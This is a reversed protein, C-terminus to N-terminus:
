RRSVVRGNRVKVQNNTLEFAPPSPLSSQTSGRGQGPRGRLGRSNERGTAGSNNSSRSERSASQRGNFRAVTDVVDHFFLVMASVNDMSGRDVAFETLKQCCNNLVRRIAEPSPRPREGSLIRPDCVDPTYSLFDRVFETAEENSLVDWLGDCALLLFASADTLNLQRVDAVNSVMLDRNSIFRRNTQSNPPSTSAPSASPPPPPPPPPPAAAAAAAASDGERQLGFPFDTLLGEEDSTSSPQFKFEFDGLARSVALIGCVRGFQVFGGCKAIRRTEDTNGPKHDESMAITTQGDYLVARADGLCAVYLMRGCVAATILTSGGNAGTTEDLMEEYMDRRRRGTNRGSKRQQELERKKAQLIHFIERDTQLISEVLALANNEGLAPHHLVFYPLWKAGLDAVHRGCHGDLVAMLSLPQGRVHTANLEIFHADEMTPRMGQVCGSGAIPSIPITGTKGSSLVVNFKYTPSAACAGASADRAAPRSPQPRAAHSPVAPTGGGAAAVAADSRPNPRLSSLLQTSSFMHGTPDTQSTEPDGWIEDDADDFNEYKDDLPATKGKKTSDKEPLPFPPPTPVKANVSRTLLGNSHRRAVAGVAAGGGRDGGGESLAELEVPLEALERPRAGGNRDRNRHLMQQPSTSTTFSSFMTPPASLVERLEGVEPDGPASRGAPGGAAASGATNPSLSGANASPFSLLRQSDGPAGRPRGPSSGAGLADGINKCNMDANDSSTRVPRLRPLVEGVSERTRPLSLARPRGSRNSDGSDSSLQSSKRPLSRSSSKQKSGQAEGSKKSVRRSHSAASVVTTTNTKPLPESVSLRPIENVYSGGTAYPRPLVTDDSSRSPPPAVAGMAAPTDTMGASGRAPLATADGSLKHPSGSHREKRNNSNTHNSGHHHHSNTNGSSLEDCANTRPSSGNSAKGARAAAAASVAGSGGGGGGRGGGAGSLTALSPPPPSPLQGSPDALVSAAASDYVQFLLTARQAANQLENTRSGRRQGGNGGGVAAANPRSNGSTTSTAASSKPGAKLGAKRVM